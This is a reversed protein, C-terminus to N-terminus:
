RQQSIAAGIIGATTLLTASFVVGLVSLSAPDDNILQSAAGLAQIPVFACFAAIAGHTLPADPRRRAAAAGGLAMGILTCALFVFVWSSNDDASNSGDTLGALVSAPLGVALAVSAGLLVARWTIEPM